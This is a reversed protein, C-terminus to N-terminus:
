RDANFEGFKDSYTNMKFSSPPYKLIDVNCKEKIRGLILKPNDCVDKYSICITKPQVQKIKKDYVDRLSYVQEKIQKLPSLKIIELYNPPLTGWWEKFSNYHRKRAELISWCVDHLNREIYIWIVNDLVETIKKMYYASLIGKMVIPKDFENQISAMTQYFDKWNIEDIHLDKCYFDQEEKMMLWYHWFYTFEHPDSICITEGFDSEYKTKRKNGLIAKSLKIGILPALWFRAAINDIYGVDLCDCLLQTLLTTGSRPLGLVFIFPKRIKKDKYDIEKQLIRNLSSLFNISDLDVTYDGKRARQEKQLFENSM